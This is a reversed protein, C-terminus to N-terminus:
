HGGMLKVQVRELCMGLGCGMSIVKDLDDIVQMSTFGTIPCRSRVAISSM